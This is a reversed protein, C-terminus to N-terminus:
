VLPTVQIHQQPVPEELNTSILEGDDRDEYGKVEHYLGSVRKNEGRTPDDM